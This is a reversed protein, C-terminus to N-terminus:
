TFGVAKAIALYGNTSRLQALLPDAYMLMTGGDRLDWAAQLSALAKDADGWQAHVQAYQYHSKDGYEAILAALAADASTRDGARRALIALGPLRRVASREKSFSARADDDAGAMLQAFGMSAHVGALTPNLEIAKRYAVIAGAQDGANYRIDGQSRFTRANLPDLTAARLIVDTARAHDRLNSRFTAYRALVDADGPALAYSREFPERAGRVDLKGTALAFGRASFGEAFDPAVTTALRAAAEASDFVRVREDHAAYLNGIVLLARARAAHAGAYREDLTTAREFYALARRDSDEDIGAEYLARGHLYADFAAVNATGGVLAAGSAHAGEVAASLAGAVAAGIESQVAFVDALPREWSDAWRSLGTTGDTLEAGIKVRGGAKQVNGGLLFDVGLARAIARGDELGQGVQESSIKGAIQMLANRSLQIRIESTLGDSFYRQEPDGSLNEFPLVAIRRPENTGRPADFWGRRWGVASSVATGVAIAGGGILLRRRSADAPMHPVTGAPPRPLAERGALPLVARLVAQLSAPAITGKAHELAISQYQRFGLPPETGDISLPVLKKLDRGRAAEDLVWDSAVSHQSWLVIVADSAALSAEITKAFAAGGEILTDWWVQLGASELAQALMRAQAQDTRSYSLFVTPSPTEGSGAQVGSM